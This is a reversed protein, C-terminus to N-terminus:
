IRLDQHWKIQRSIFFLEGNSALRQSFVSLARRNEESTVFLRGHGTIPRVINKVLSLFRGVLLWCDRVPIFNIENSKPAFIETHIPYLFIRSATRVIPSIISQVFSYLRGPRMSVIAKSFANSEKLQFKRKLVKSFNLKPSDKILHIRRREVLIDLQM